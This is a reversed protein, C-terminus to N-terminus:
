TLDKYVLCFLSLSSSQASIFMQAAPVGVPKPVAPALLLPPECSGQNPRQSHVPLQFVVATPFCCAMSASLKFCVRFSGSTECVGEALPFSGLRPQPWPYCVSHACLASASSRASGTPVAPNEAQRQPCFACASPGQSPVHCKGARFTLGVVWTQQSARAPITHTWCPCLMLGWTFRQFSGWHCSDSPEGECGQLCPLLLQSAWVQRPYWPLIWQSSHCWYIQEKWSKGRPKDGPTAECPQSSWQAAEQLLTKLLTISAFTHHLPSIHQNIGWKWKKTTM